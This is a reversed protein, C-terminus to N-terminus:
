GVSSRKLPVTKLKKGYFRSFNESVKNKSWEIEFVDMIVFNKDVEELLQSQISRGFEWILILHLEKM